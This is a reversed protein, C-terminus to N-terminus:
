VGLIGQPLQCKLWVHFLGYAALTSFVAGLIAWSWKQPELAKFLFILLAITTVIFGLRELAYAYIVLAALVSIVKKWRIDAVMKKLEGKVGKERIAGILIMLSLGSMIFGAWFFIFGSGPDRLSGMGLDYGGYAIGIGMAMWFLSSIIDRTKV